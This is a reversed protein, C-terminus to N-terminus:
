LIKIFKYADKDQMVAELCIEPTQDKVFQLIRWNENITDILHNM